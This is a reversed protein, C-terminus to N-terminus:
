TAPHRRKLATRLGNESPRSRTDLYRAYRYIFRKISCQNAVRYSGDSAWFLASELVRLRWHTSAFGRSWLELRSADRLWSRIVSFITLCLLHRYNTFIRPLIIVRNKDLKVGSFIMEFHIHFGVILSDSLLQSLSVPLGRSSPISHTLEDFSMIVMVSCRFPFSPWSFSDVRGGSILGFALFEGILAM